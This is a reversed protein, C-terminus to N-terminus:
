SGGRRMSRIRALNAADKLRGRLKATDGSAAPDVTFVDAGVAVCRDALTELDAAGLASSVVVLQPMMVPIRECAAAVHGVRLVRLGDAALADNCLTAFPEALGVLIATPTVVRQITERKVVAEKYILQGPSAAFQACRRADTNAEGL